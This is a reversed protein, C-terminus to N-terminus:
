VNVNASWGDPMDYDDDTNANADMVEVDEDIEEYTADGANSFTPNNYNSAAQGYAGQPSDQQQRASQSLQRNRAVLFGIAVIAVLLLPVAIGAILPALSASSPPVDAGTDTSNTNGGNNNNNTVTAGGNKSGGGGNSCPTRRHRDSGCQEEVEARITEEVESRIAKLLEDVEEKSYTTEKLTGVFDQNAKKNLEDDIEVMSYTDAKAYSDGKDVKKDLAQFELLSANLTTMTTKAVALEDKTANLATELPQVKAAIQADVETKTCVNSMTADVETKTYVDSMDPLADIADEMSNLTDAMPKCADSNKGGIWADQVGNMYQNQSRACKFTQGTTPVAAMGLLGVGFLVSAVKFM